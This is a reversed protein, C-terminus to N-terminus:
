KSTEYMSNTTKGEWSQGKTRFNVPEHMYVYIFHIKKGSEQLFVWLRLVTNSARFWPKLNGKLACEGEVVPYLPKM